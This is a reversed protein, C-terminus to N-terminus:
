AADKVLRITLNYFSQTYQADSAVELKFTSGNVKWTYVPGSNTGKGNTTGTLENTGDTATASLSKYLESEIKYIKYGAPASITMSGGKAITWEKYKSQSYSKVFTVTANVKEDGTGCEITCNSDGSTEPLGEFSTYTLSASDITTARETEFTLTKTASAEGKTATVTVVNTDKTTTPTVTITGKSSDVTATNGSTLELTVTVDSYSSTITYTADDDLSFKTGGLKTTITQLVANVKAADTMDNETVTIANADKATAYCAYANSYVTTIGVFDFQKGKTVAENYKAVIDTTNSIYNKNNYFYFETTGTGVTFYYYNGDIRTPSCGKLTIYANQYKSDVAETSNETAKEWDSTADIPAIDTVTPTDEDIVYSGGSAFEEQGNYDSRTGVYIITDGVKARTQGEEVTPKYGFYSYGESDRFVVTTTDAYASICTVVGKLIYTKNKTNKAWTAHTDFTLVPVIVNIAEHRGSTLESFTKTVGELTFSPTLKAKIEEKVVNKTWGTISVKGDKYSIVGETGETQQLTWTVAVDDSGIAVSTLVTFDATSQANNKSKTASWLFDAADTLVSLIDENTRGTSTSSPSTESSSTTQNNSSPSSASSSTGACAGASFTLILASSLVLLKKFKM